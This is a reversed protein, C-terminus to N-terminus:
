RVLSEYGIVERIADLPSQKKSNLGFKELVYM